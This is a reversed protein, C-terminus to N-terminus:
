LLTKKELKAQKWLFPKVVKGLNQFNGANVKTIKLLFMETSIHQVGSLFTQYVGHRLVSLGGSHSALAPRPPPFHSRCLSSDGPNVLLILQLLSGPYELSEESRGQPRLVDSTDLGVSWLNEIESFKNPLQQM